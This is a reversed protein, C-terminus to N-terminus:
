IDIYYGLLTITVLYVPNNTPQSNNKADAVYYYFPYFNDTNIYVPFTAETEAEFLTNFGGTPDLSIKTRGNTNLASWQAKTINQPEDLGSPLSINPAENGSFVGFIQSNNAQSNVNFKAKILVAICNTPVVFDAYRIGSWWARDFRTNGLINASAITVNANSRTSLNVPVFNILSGLGLNNRAAAATSANTGGRAIPLVGTTIKSADLSPIDSAVLDGGATVLGKSDYTIKTKTTGTIAPNASIKSDIQTQISSTAGNLYQFETNSITGDAIKTADLNAPILNTTFVGTTIKSADLSPIDSAVLDGGATVLGKSDYTIKTKTAGTIAPNAPVSASATGGISNLQTQINSTIGILTNLEDTTVSSAAVKQAADSILVRNATTNLYAANARIDTTARIDGTVDLKFGPTITGVGVNGLSNVTFFETFPATAQAVYFRSDNQRVGVIVPVEGSRNTTFIISPGFANAATNFTNTLRLYPGNGTSFSGRIDLRSAPIDTGIGVNSNIDWYPRGTSLKIPIINGDVIKVTTVSNVNLNGAEITFPAIKTGPITADTLRDGPISNLQVKLGNISNDIIQREGVSNHAMKSFIIASGAIYQSTLPFLGSLDNFRTTFIGSLNDIRSDFNFTNANIYALSDGLCWSRDIRYPAVGGPPFTTTINVAM